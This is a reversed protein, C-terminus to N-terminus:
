DCDEFIVGSMDWDDKFFSILIDDDGTVLCADCIDDALIEYVKIKTGADVCKVVDRGDHREVYCTNRKATITSIIAGPRMRM